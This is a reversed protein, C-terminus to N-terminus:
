VQRTFVFIIYFLFSAYIVTVVKLQGTFALGNWDKSFLQMGPKLINVSHHESM